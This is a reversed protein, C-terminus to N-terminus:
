KKGPSGSTKGGSGAAKVCKGGSCVTGKPCVTGSGAPCDYVCTKTSSGPLQVCGTSNSPCMTGSGPPCDNVCTMKTGIQVCGTSNAPCMTGSWPPCEIAALAQGATLVIATLLIFMIKLYDRKKM